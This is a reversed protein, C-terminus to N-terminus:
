PGADRQEEIKQKLKGRTEARLDVARVAETRGRLVIEAARRDATQTRVRVQPLPTEVTTEAAPAGPPAASETKQVQGSAIWGAAALGVVGAILYSVRM